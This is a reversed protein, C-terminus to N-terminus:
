LSFPDSWKPNVYVDNGTLTKIFAIVSNVETATVNLKQGFGNPMLRPDLNTNGPAININGYHGILTQLNTFIGTHMLPSNLTGNPNVLDRLSPARTNTIDIGTGNLVGIIGNNKTNPDIDFEPPAHCGACGFGGSTRNGTADFVPPSLWASMRRKCIHCRLTVIGSGAGLPLVLGDNGM